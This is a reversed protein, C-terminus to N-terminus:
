FGQQDLWRVLAEERQRHDQGSQYRGLVYDGEVRGDSIFIIRDSRLAVKIDHTVLMVTTGEQNIDQLIDLIENTAKSNLAGTPEDGFLIRPQNILARCIAIRQLQGGSAQTLDKSGIGEIGTKKMLEAARIDINHHDSKHSHYAGLIINDLLNLNKLLNHQQFVFGMKDLRLRALKKETQDGLYEGDFIVKGKTPKEMGSMQYLLTSKGSGSPGMITVYEGENITINIDKLIQQKNGNLEYDKCLGMTEIITKM